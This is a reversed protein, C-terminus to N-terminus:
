SRLMRLMMVKTVPFICQLYSVGKGVITSQRCLQLWELEHQRIRIMCSNRSEMTMLANLLRIM